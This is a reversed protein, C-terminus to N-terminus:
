SRRRNRLSELRSRRSSSEDETATEEKEEEEEPPEEKKPAPKVIKEKKRLGLTDCIADALDQDTDFNAPDLDLGAEDLLDDLEKSSMEQVEEYTVDVSKSTKTASKEPKRTPIKDEEEENAVTSVGSFARAIKEFPYFILTSPLPNEQIYEWQDDPMELVSSRRALTVSYETREGSGNRTVKVDFGEEPDDVPFFEQTRADTAQIMIEKDVTWPSAWVKIGEKEKDRDILYFLVRKTPRLKKAYDKDGEAEAKLREDCIPCKKGQMKEPCLYAANDPGVNYHVYIDYGYHEPAEWTPPLIRILNEGETPKFFVLDDRIYNDRSSSSQEARRRAQDYNRKQYKFKKSM